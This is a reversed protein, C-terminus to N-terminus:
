HTRGTLLWLVLPVGVFVGFAILAVGWFNEKTSAGCSPCTASNPPFKKLCLRCRFPDGMGDM